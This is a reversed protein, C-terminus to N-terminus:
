PLISGLVSSKLGLQAHISQIWDNLRALYAQREGALNPTDRHGPRDPGPVRIGYAVAERPGAKNYTKIFVPYPSTYCFLHSSCAPMTSTLM